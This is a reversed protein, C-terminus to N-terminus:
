EERFVRTLNDALPKILYELVTRESTPIVAEVPMGPVLVKEGLKGLEEKTLGIVVRYFSFGTKEDVVSIPSVRSVEGFLEPTTRQSFAPFRVVAKRMLPMRTSDSPLKAEFFAMVIVKM